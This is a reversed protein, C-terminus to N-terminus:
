DNWPTRHYTGEGYHGGSYTQFEWTRGDSSEKTTRYISGQGEVDCEGEIAGQAAKLDDGELKYKECVDTPVAYIADGSAVLVVKNSM